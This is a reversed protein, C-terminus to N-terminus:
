AHGPPLIHKKRDPGLEVEFGHRPGRDWYQAVYAAVFPVVPVPGIGRGEDGARTLAGVAGPIEDAGETLGAAPDDAREVRTLDDHRAVQVHYSVGVRMVREEREAIAQDAAMAGEVGCGRGVAVGHPREERVRVDHVVGRVPTGTARAGARSASPPCTMADSSAQGPGQLSSGSGDMKSRTSQLASPPPASSEWAPRALGGPGIKRPPQMTM